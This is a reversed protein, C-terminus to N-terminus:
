AHPDRGPALHELIAAAVAEPRELHVNHGAGPIELLRGFALELLLARAGEATLLGSEGGRVVLVPCRIDRKPAPEAAPLRFWRPDFKYGYRGDRERRISRLAIRRRLSEDALKAEPLFRYRDIAEERTRYTRRAALAMRARRRDSKQGGRAPEIAVVARVEPHRAAHDMAVHAGLSHGVLAYRAVGLHRVLAEVDAHFAGVRLEDPHDSDGHGRFDLAVLRHRPCLSALMPWWWSANAGGGHLLIAVPLAEDGWSRFSLAVGDSASFREARELPHRTPPQPRESM